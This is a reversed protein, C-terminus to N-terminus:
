NDFSKNEALNRVAEMKKDLKLNDTYSGKVISDLMGKQGQVIEIMQRWSMSSPFLKALFEQCARQQATKKTSEEAYGEIPEEGDARPMSYHFSFLMTKGDLPNKRSSDKNTIGANKIKGSIAHVTSLPTFLNM